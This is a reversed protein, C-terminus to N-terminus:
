RGNKYRTRDYDQTTLNILNDNDGENEYGYENDDDVEEDYDGEYKASGKPVDKNRSSM